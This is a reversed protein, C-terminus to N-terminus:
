RGQQVADLVVETMQWRGNAWLVTLSGRTRGGPFDAVQAGPRTVTAPTTLYTAAFQVPQELAFPGVALEVPVSLGGELGAGEQKWRQIAILWGNCQGCGAGTHSALADADLVSLSYNLTDFWFLSFATAGAETPQSAEAPLGPQRTPARLDVETIRAGGSGAPDPPEGDDQAQLALTTGTAVLVGASLLALLARRRAVRRM